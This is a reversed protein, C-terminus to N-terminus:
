VTVNLGLRQLRERLVVPASGQQDEGSLARRIRPLQLREKVRPLCHDADYSGRGDRNANSRATRGPTKVASVSLLEKQAHRGLSGPVAVAVAM